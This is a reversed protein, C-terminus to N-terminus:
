FSEKQYLIYSNRKLYNFIVTTVFLKSHFQLFLGLVINVYKCLNEKLWDNLKKWNFMFKKVKLIIIVFFVLRIHEKFKLFSTESIHEPRKPEKM